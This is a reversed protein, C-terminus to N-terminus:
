GEDHRTFWSYIVGFGAWFVCGAEYPLQWAKTKVSPAGVQRDALRFLLFGSAMNIGSWLLNVGPSSDRGFPTINRRGTAAVILHPVSNTFFMGALFYAIRSLWKLRLGEKKM